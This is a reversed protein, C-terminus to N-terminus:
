LLNFINYNSQLSMLQKGESIYNKYNFVLCNLFVKITGINNVKTLCLEMIFLIYILYRM